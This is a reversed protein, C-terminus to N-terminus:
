TQGAVLSSHSSGGQNHIGGSRPVALGIARGLLNNLRRAPPPPHKLLGQLHPEPYPGLSFTLDDNPQSSCGDYNNDFRLKPGSSWRELDGNSDSGCSLM